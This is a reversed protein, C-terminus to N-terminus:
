LAARFVSPYLDASAVTGQLVPRLLSSIDTQEKMMRLYVGPNNVGEGVFVYGRLRGNSVLIKRYQGDSTDRYVDGEDRTSEGGTFVTLGFVTLINRFVDGPYWTEQEVMNQAACRAQEVAVPWLAHVAKQGLLIDDTEVADGAAYVGAATTELHPGLVIGKNVQVETGQLFGTNPKVGKGYVVCCGRLMKGSALRVYLADGRETIEVIDEGKLLEVGLGSLAQEIVSSADRDVIQSLVRNSSVVYTMPVGLKVLADGVEANVLGAGSLIVRKESSSAICKRVVEIDGITRIGVVSPLSSGPVDPIVPSTGTAILLRDYGEVKGDTTHVTRSATDLGDVTAGLRLEVGPPAPLVCNDFWTMGSLIYPLSMKGYPRVQEGSLIVVEDGPHLEKIRAAATIGAVSAGIIVHNM